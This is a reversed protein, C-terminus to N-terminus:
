SYLHNKHGRMDDRIKKEDCIYRRVFAHFEKSHNLHVLHSLEHVIVYDIQEKTLHMLNTNLTIIGLSNCSGWRSKMKKFRLEKYVLHMLQSFYEVREKLYISACDKYFADYCRLINEKTPKRLRSISVKLSAFMEADVKYVEGFLLIEDKLKICLPPNQENKLLQKRIWGEREQLLNQIFFESVKPTKLIIKSEKTVSIYSHKLRPKILHEIQLDKFTIKNTHLQTKKEQM